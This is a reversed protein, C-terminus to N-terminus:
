DFGVIKYKEKVKFPGNARWDVGKEKGWRKRETLSKWPNSGADHEWLM